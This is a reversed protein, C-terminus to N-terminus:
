KLQAVECDIDDVKPDREEVQVSVNTPLEEAVNKSVIEPKFAMKNHM